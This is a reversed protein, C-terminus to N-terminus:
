LCEKGVRREESRIGKLFDYYTYLKQVGNELIYYHRIYPALLALLLTVLVLLEWRSTLICGLFALVTLIAFVATVILHVLREHQFFRIQVLLDSIIEEADGAHLEGERARLKEMYALYSKLRKEM